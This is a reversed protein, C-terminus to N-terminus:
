RPATPPRPLAARIRQSFDPADDAGRAAENVHSRRKLEEFPLGQDLRGRGYAYQPAYGSLLVKWSYHGGGPNVRTHMVVNTTCNTTLTNYFQPESRLSNITKFYDLFLRRVNEKPANTRFVYVDEPPDKRYNTRLRILDREDGVIYILEYQRFFGAITSYTEGREKRTEISVTLFDRDAFGFSVMVHAIADGMWYCTILDVSDLERLDFTKDYYGPTFDTETRYDFNRINHVTVLDGEFTADPLVAVDPQWDRQNSPKVTSWALAFCALAIVFAPMAILRIRPVFISAAASIGVIAMTIAAASARLPGLYLAFSCWATVGAIVMAAVVGLLTRQWPRM